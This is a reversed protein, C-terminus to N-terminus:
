LERKKLKELLSMDDWLLAVHDCERSAENLDKLCLNGDVWIHYDSLTGDQCQWLGVKAMDLTNNIVDCNSLVQKFCVGMKDLRTDFSTSDDTTILLADSLMNDKHAEFLVQWSDIMNKYKRNKSNYRDKNHLLLHYRKVLENGNHKWQKFNLLFLEPPVIFHVTVNEDFEDVLKQIFNEQQLEDYIDTFTFEILDNEFDDEYQIHGEVQYKRKSINDENFILFIQNLKPLKIKKIPEALGQSISYIKNCQSMVNSIHGYSKVRHHTCRQRTAVIDNIENYINEVSLNEYQNNKQIARCFNYTFFAMEYTPDEYAVKTNSSTFIEYKIKNDWENIFQGSYCADLVITVKKNWQETLLLIDKLNIRDNESGVIYFKDNEVVGHGVYYFLFEDFDERFSTIKNKLAGTDSIIYPEEMKWYTNLVTSVENVSNDLYKLDNSGELSKFGKCILAIQKSM